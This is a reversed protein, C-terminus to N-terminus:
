RRRSILGYALLVVIAGAAAIAISPVDFGVVAPGGLKGSVWGGIYAGLIGLVITMIWGNPGLRPMLLKAIIGAVLGVLVWTLFEM